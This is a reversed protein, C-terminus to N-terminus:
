ERGKELMELDKRLQTKRKKKRRKRKPHQRGRKSREHEKTQIKITETTNDKKKLGGNGCGLRVRVGLEGPRIVFTRRTPCPRGDKEPIKSRCSDGEKTLLVREAGTRAARGAKGKNMNMKPAGMGKQTKESTARRHGETQRPNTQGGRPLGRAIERAKKNDRRTKEPSNEKASLKISDNKTKGM